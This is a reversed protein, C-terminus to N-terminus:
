PLYVGGLIVSCNAGTVAPINGPLKELRYKALLAFMMAEVADPDIGYEGTSAIRLDSLNTALSKMLFDNHVGGGCVLVTRTDAANKRIANSITVATLETLTRQVDEPSLQQNSSELKTQLWQMNFYDRGTSKPSPLTFFKDELFHSLLNNNLKGSAAWAGNIDMKEQTHQSAWADLLVNGPGTDFGTVPLKSNLSPLITINGMGGINVVVRHEAQDSFVYHHFVPALPAGQGGAAMDMRRFDAVVTIGTTCAIINPDGIQLTSPVPPEPRHMITQGHSGIAVVETANIKKEKLLDLAAKAFARGLEVDLQTLVDISTNKDISILKERLALDLPWQQYHLLVPRNDSFDVLASDVADMSTGSLLGIYYM